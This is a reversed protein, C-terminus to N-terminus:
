PTARAAQRQAKTVRQWRRFTRIQCERKEGNGTSYLVYRNAVAFVKRPVKRGEVPVYLEGSAPPPPQEASGRRM